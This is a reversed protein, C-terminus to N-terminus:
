SVPECPGLRLGGFSVYGEFVSLIVVPSKFRTPLKTESSVSVRYASPWSEGSAVVEHAREKLVISLVRRDFRFTMETEGALGSIAELLNRRLPRAYDRDISCKPCAQYARQRELAAREMRAPPVLDWHRDGEVFWDPLPELERRHSKLAYSVWAAAELPSGLDNPIQSEVEALISGTNVVGSLLVVYQMSLNMVHLAVLDLHVFRYGVTAAGYKPPRREFGLELLCDLTPCPGSLTDGGGFGVDAVVVRIAQSGESGVEKYVHMAKLMDVDGEDIFVEEM